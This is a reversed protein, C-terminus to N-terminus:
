PTVSAVVSLKKRKLLRETNDSFQPITRPPAQKANMNSNLSNRRKVCVDLRVNDIDPINLTLLHSEIVGNM